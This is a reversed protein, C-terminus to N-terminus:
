VQSSNKWNSLSQAAAVPPCAGPRREIHGPGLLVEVAPQETLADRHERGLALHLNVWSSRARQYVAHDSTWATPPVGGVSTWTSSSEVVGSSPIIALPRTDM